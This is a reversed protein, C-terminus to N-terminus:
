ICNKNKAIPFTLQTRGYAVIVDGEIAGEADNANVIRTSVGGSRNTIPSTVFPAGATVIFECRCSEAHMGDVSPLPVNAYGRPVLYEKFHM